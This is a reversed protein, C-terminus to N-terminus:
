PKLSNDSELLFPLKRGTLHSEPVLPNPFDSCESGEKLFHTGINCENPQNM